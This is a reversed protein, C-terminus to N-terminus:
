WSAHFKIVCLRDDENLFELLEAKSEITRTRAVAGDPLKTAVDTTRPRPAPEVYWESSEDLYMSLSSSPRFSGMEDLRRDWAQSPYASTRVTRELIPGSFATVCSTSMSLAILFAAVIPAVKTYCSASM